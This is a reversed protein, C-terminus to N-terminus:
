QDACGFLVMKRESRGRYEDHLQTFLGYIMLQKDATIQQKLKNFWKERTLYYRTCVLKVEQPTDLEVERELYFLLPDFIEDHELKIVTLRTEPAVISNIEQASSRFQKLNNKIGQGGFVVLGFICLASWWSVLSYFYNRRLLLGVVNLAVLGLLIGQMTISHDQLWTMSAFFIPAQTVWPLKASELALCLVLSLFIFFLPLTNLLKLLRGTTAQSLREYREHLHWAVYVSMCPLLPLLYAHRKGSSLSFFIFGTFFCIALMTRTRTTDTTFYASSRQASIANYFYSGTLLLFIWSWPAASRLVSPIYFWFPRATIHEGGMFRRFNEFIFQKFVFGASGELVAMYYWPLAICLFLLWAWRPKCYMKLAVIFSTMYWTAVFTIVLPLILGLPGKALTALGAAIFFLSFNPKREFNYRTKTHESTFAGLIAYLALIVFFCFVMDVRADGMLKLFEYSTSLVVASGFAIYRNKPQCQGSSRATCKLALLVTLFIVGAGFLASVSRSLLPTVGGFLSGLGATIWHALPPKSPIVGNRLPMVWESTEYIIRSVHVERAESSSGIDYMHLLSAIILLPGVALLLAFLRRSVIGSSINNATVSNSSSM